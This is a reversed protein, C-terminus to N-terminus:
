RNLILAVWNWQEETCFHMAFWTDECKEWHPCPTGGVYNPRYCHYGDESKKYPMKTGGGSGFGAVLSRLFTQDKFDEFKTHINYLQIATTLPIIKVFPLHLQNLLVSDLKYCFSGFGIINKERWTGKADNAMLEWIEYYTLTDRKELHPIFSAYPLELTNEM